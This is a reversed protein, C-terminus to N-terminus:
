KSVLLIKAIDIKVELILVIKISIELNSLHKKQIICLNSLYEIKSVFPQLKHLASIYITVGLSNTRKRQTM